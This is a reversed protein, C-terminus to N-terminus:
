FIGKDPVLLVFPDRNSDKEGSYDIQTGVGRGIQTPIEDKTHQKKMLQKNIWGLLPKDAFVSQSIGDRAFTEVLSHLLAPVQIGHNTDIINIIFHEIAPNKTVLEPKDDAEGNDSLSELRQEEDNWEVNNTDAEALSKKKLTELRFQRIVAALSTKCDDEEEDEDEDEEDEDDKDKKSKSKSKSEEKEDDDEDEEDEDEDVGDDAAAMEEATNNAPGVPTGVNQSPGIPRAENTSPGIPKLQNSIPLQNGVPPTPVDEAQAVVIAAYAAMRDDEQAKLYQALGTREQYDKVAEEVSSFKPKHGSVIASMMEYISPQAQTRQNRAVEVATVARAEKTLSATKTVQEKLAMQEAFDELWGSTKSAERSIEGTRQFAGKIDRM